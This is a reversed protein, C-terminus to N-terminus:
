YIIWLLKFQTHENRKNTILKSGKSATSKLVVDLFNPKRMPNENGARELHTTAHEELTLPQVM